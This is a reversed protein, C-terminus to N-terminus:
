GESTRWCVEQPQDWHKKLHAMYKEVDGSFAWGKSLGPDREESSVDKWHLRFNADLALYLAYIFRSPM